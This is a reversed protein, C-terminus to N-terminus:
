CHRTVPNFGQRYHHRRCIRAPFIGGNNSALVTLDPTSKKLAGAAPGDGKGSKGHCVACLEGYLEGGM